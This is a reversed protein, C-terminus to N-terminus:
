RECKGEIWGGSFGARCLGRVVYPNERMLSWILGTRHNEIMALIPGQDIGLYEDEFWGQPTTQGGDPAPDEQLTYTLNFADYFGYQGFLRDGYRAHMTKM